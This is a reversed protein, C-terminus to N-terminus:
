FAWAEIGEVWEQNMAEGHTNYSYTKRYDEGAATFSVELRIFYTLHQDGRFVLRPQKEEGPTISTTYNERAMLNGDPDEVELLLQFDELNVTGENTVLVNVNIVGGTGGGGPAEHYFLRM